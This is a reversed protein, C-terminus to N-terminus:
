SIGPGSKGARLPRVPWSIRAGISQDARAFETIKRPMDGPTQFSQQAPDVLTRFASSESALQTLTAYDFEQGQRAFGRRCEQVLWLGPINKLFRTTGDVGLENTFSATQAATSVCPAPLEAGLLSWTGSSLYCWDSHEVAPVAAVASATDHAAPMVVSLEAPM